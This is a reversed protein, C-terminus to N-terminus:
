GWGQSVPLSKSGLFRTQASIGRKKCLLHGQHKPLLHHLSEQLDLDLPMQIQMKQKSMSGPSSIQTACQLRWSACPDSSGEFQSQLHFLQIYIYVYIVHMNNRHYIVLEVTYLRNKLSRSSGGSSLSVWVASSWWSWMRFCTPNVWRSRGLGFESAVAVGPTPMVEHSVM